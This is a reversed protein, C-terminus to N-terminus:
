CGPELRQAGPSGQRRVVPGDGPLMRAPVGVYTHRGALSQVATCGAGLVAWDGITIGPIVIAGTGLECGEGISVCGALHVDPHLTAFDGLVDDHAVQCHTNVTAFRGVRVSVTLVAGVGVYSGEGLTVNPGLTALPHVVTAWRVGLHALRAVLRRKTRPLGVGLVLEVEDGCAHEGVRDIEGVVEGLDSALPGVPQGDDFFLFEVPMGAARAQERLSWAVEQAHGAAGIVLYRM